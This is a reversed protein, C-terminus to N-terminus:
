TSRGGAIVDRGTHAGVTDATERTKMERGQPAAFTTKRVPARRTRAQIVAAQPELPEAAAAMAVLRAKVTAMLDALLETQAPSLDRLADGVTQAAVAQMRQSINEAGATLYLRNVRRDVPDPRREIWGKRELRDVMRGASAKEVEMMDALESQSAGPRRNLRALVLWQARTLELRRVRRDFVTRMLRAADSILFGLSRDDDKTM